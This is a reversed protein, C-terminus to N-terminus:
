GVNIPKVIDAYLTLLTILILVSAVAYMVPLMQATDVFIQPRRGAAEPHRRARLRARGRKAAEVENCTCRVIDCGAMALDYIQQLTGDVDATKTTTMSQVSIPADGGVPVDGVMIRRTKRRPYSSQGLEM